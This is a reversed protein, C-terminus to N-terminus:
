VLDCDLRLFIKLLAGELNCPVQLISYDLSKNETVSASFWIYMMANAIIVYM